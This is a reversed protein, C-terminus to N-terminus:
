IRVKRLDTGCKPCFRVENAIPNIIPTHPSSSHMKSATTTPLGGDTRRRPKVIGLKKRVRVFDHRRKQALTRGMAELKKRCGSETQHYSVEMASRAGEGCAVCHFPYGDDKVLSEVDPLSNFVRKQYPTYRRPEKEEAM